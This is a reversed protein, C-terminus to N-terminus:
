KLGDNASLKIQNRCSELKMATIVGKSEKQIEALEEPTYMPDTETRAITRVTQGSPVNLSLFSTASNSSGDFAHGFTYDAANPPKVTSIMLMQDRDGFLTISRSVMSVRSDVKSQASALYNSEPSQTLVFGGCKIMEENLPQCSYTAIDSRAEDLWKNPSLTYQDHLKIARSYAKEAKRNFRHSQESNERLVASNFLSTISDQIRDANEAVFAEMAQGEGKAILWSANHPETVGYIKEFHPPNDGHKAVSSVVDIAAPNLTLTDSYFLFDTSKNYFYESVHTGHDCTLRMADTIMEFVPEGNRSEGDVVIATLKCLEPNIGEGKIDASFTHFGPRVNGTIATSTIGYKQMVSPLKPHRLIDGNKVYSIAAKGGCFLLMGVLVRAVFVTDKPCKNSIKTNMM